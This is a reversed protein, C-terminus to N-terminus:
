YKTQFLVSCHFTTMQKWSTSLLCVLTKLPTKSVRTCLIEFDRFSKFVGIGIPRPMVSFKIALTGETFLSKGM